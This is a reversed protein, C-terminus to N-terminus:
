ANGRRTQKGNFMRGLITEWGSRKKAQPYQEDIWQEFATPKPTQMVRTDGDLSEPNIPDAEVIPAVETKQPYPLPLVHREGPAPMESLLWEQDLAQNSLLLQAPTVPIVSSVEPVVPMPMVPYMHPTVHGATILPVVNRPMTSHAAQIPAAQIPAAKIPAPTDIVTAFSPADEASLQSSPQSETRPLELDINGYVPQYSRQAGNTTAPLVSKLIDNLM